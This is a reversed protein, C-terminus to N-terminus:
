FGSLLRIVKERNLKEILERQGTIFEKSKRETSSKASLAEEKASKEAELRAVLPSLEDAVLPLGTLILIGQLTWM